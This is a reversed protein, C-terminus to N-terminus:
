LQWPVTVDPSNRSRRRSISSICWASAPLEKWACRCSRPAASDRSEGHALAVPTNTTHPSCYLPTPPLTRGMNKRFAPDAPSCFTVAEVNCHSCGLLSVPIYGSVNHKHFLPLKLDNFSWAELRPSTPTLFYSYIPHSSVSNAAQWKGPTGAHLDHLHEDCCFTELNTCNM